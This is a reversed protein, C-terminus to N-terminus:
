SIIMLRMMVKMRPSCGRSLCRKLVPCVNTPCPYAPDGCPVRVDPRACKFDILGMMTWFVPITHSEADEEEADEPLAEVNMLKLIGVPCEDYEQIAICKTSLAAAAYRSHAPCTHPLACLLSPAATALLNLGLDTM